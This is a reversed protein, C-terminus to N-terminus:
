IKKRKKKRAERLLKEAARSEIFWLSTTNRPPRKKTMAESELLYRLRPIDRPTCAVIPFSPMKLYIKIVDRVFDAGDLVNQRLKIKRLV